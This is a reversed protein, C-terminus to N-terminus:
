TAAVLTYDSPLANASLPIVTPTNTLMVGFTQATGHEVDAGSAPRLSDAAAYFLLLGSSTGVVHSWDRGILKTALSQYVGQGDVRALALQGGDTSLAPRRRYLAVLGNGVPALLLRGNINSSTFLDSHLTVFGSGPADAVFSAGDWRCAYGNSSASRSNVFLLGDESTAICDTWPGFTTVVSTWGPPNAFAGAADMTWVQGAGGVASTSKYFLFTHPAIRRVVEWGSGVNGTLLTTVHGDPAMACTAIAGSSADYFVLSAQGVPVNWEPNAAAVHTWGSSFPQAGLARVRGNPLVLEISNAANSYFIVKGPRYPGYAPDICCTRWYISGGVIVYLRGLYTAIGTTPVFAAAPPPPCLPMWRLDLCMQAERFVISGSATLGLLKGDQAAIWRVGPARGITLMASPDANVNNHLLESGAPVPVSPYTLAFLLAPDDAAAVARTNPPLALTVRPGFGGSSAEGFRSGGAPLIADRQRYDNARFAYLAKGVRGVGAIGLTGDDVSDIEEWGSPELGAPAPELYPSRRYLRGGSALLLHGFISGTFGVAASVKAQDSAVEGLMTWSTSSPLTPAVGASPPILPSTQRTKLKEVVNKTIAALVSDGGVANSWGNAGCAFVVPYAGGTYSRVHYGMVPGWGAHDAGSREDRWALVRFGGPTGDRGTPVKLGEENVMLEAGDCEAGVGLTIAGGGFEYGTSAFNVVNTNFPATFVWDDSFQARYGALKSGSTGMKYSVGMTTNEPSKVPAASWYSTEPDEVSSKACVMIRNPRGDPSDRMAVKWWMANATFFAINGGHTLFRELADRMGQSWYEDHGTIVILNYNELRLDAPAELDFSSCSDCHDGAVNELFKYLGSAETAGDETGPWTPDFSFRMGSRSRLPKDLSVQRARYVFPSGEQEYLSSPKGPDRPPFQSYALANAFPWVYLIKTTTGPTASRVVFEIRELADSSGTQHITVAYLGSPFGSLAHHFGTVAPWEPCGMECADRPIPKRHEDGISAVLQLQYATSPYATWGTAGLLWFKAVISCPLMDTTLRIDLFSDQVYSTSTSYADIKM